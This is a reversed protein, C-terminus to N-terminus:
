EMRPGLFSKKRVEIPGQIITETM